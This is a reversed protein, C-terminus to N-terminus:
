KVDFSYHGTTRHGDAAVAVWVVSYKGPTLANLAVSMRKSNSADVKAKERIVSKGQADTVEISSFAPELGDDFDIVVANLTAPATSGASPEQHTPYAHAWALQATLLALSAIATRLTALKM